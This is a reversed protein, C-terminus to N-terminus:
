RAELPLFEVSQREEGNLFFTVARTGPTRLLIRNRGAQLPLRIRKAPTLRQGNLWMECGKGIASTALEVKGAESEAMLLPIDRGLVPEMATMHVLRFERMESSDLLSRVTGLEEATLGAQELMAAGMIGFRRAHAANDDSGNELDGVYREELAQLRVMLGVMADPVQAGTTGHRLLDVMTDKFLM